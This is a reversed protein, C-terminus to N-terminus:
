YVIEGFLKQSFEPMNKLIFIELGELRVNSHCVDILLHHENCNWCILSSSLVQNSDTIVNLLFLIAEQIHHSNKRSSLLCKLVEDICTYSVM